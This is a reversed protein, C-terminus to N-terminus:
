QGQVMKQWTYNNKSPNMTISWSRHKEEDICVFVADQRSQQLKVVHSVKVDKNVFSLEEKLISEIHLGDPCNFELPLLHM